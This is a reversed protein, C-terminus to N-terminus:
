KSKIYKRLFDIDEETTVKFNSLSGEVINIKIGLNQVLMSEDTVCYNTAIAM